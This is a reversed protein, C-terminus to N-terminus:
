SNKRLKRRLAMVGAGIGLLAMTAPEPVATFNGAQGWTFSGSFANNAITPSYVDSVTKGKQAGDTYVLDLLTGGTTRFMVKFKDGTSWVEKATDTAGTWTWSETGSVRGAKTDNGSNFTGYPSVVHTPDSVLVLVVAGGPAGAIIEAATYAVGTPKVFKMLNSGWTFQAAGAAGCLGVALAMMLLKKM